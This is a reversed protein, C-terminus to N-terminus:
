LGLSDTQTGVMRSATKKILCTENREPEHELKWGCKCVIPVTM